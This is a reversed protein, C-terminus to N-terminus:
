YKSLDTELQNDQTTRNFHWYRYESGLVYRYRNTYKCYLAIRGELMAWYEPLPGGSVHPNGDWGPQNFNASRFEKTKVLFMQQSITQTKREPEGDNPSVIFVDPNQSLIEVGKKVWSDSQRVIWCDSDAFVIYDSKSLQESYYAATLHNVVHYKWVHAKDIESSYQSKYIDIGYDTLLNDIVDKDVWILHIQSEDVWEDYFPSLPRNSTSFGQYVIFVKNFKYGNSKVQLELQGPKHLRHIDGKHCFTAFDVIPM